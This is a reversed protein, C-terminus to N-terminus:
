KLSIKIVRKREDREFNLKNERALWGTATDIERRTLKTTRILHSITQLGQGNLAAWIKGADEGIKATIEQM